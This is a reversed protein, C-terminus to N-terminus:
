REAWNTPERKKFEIEETQNEGDVLFLFLHLRLFLLIYALQILQSRKFAIWKWTSTTNGVNTENKKTHTYINQKTEIPAKDALIQAYSQMKIAYKWRFKPVKKTGQKRVLLNASRVSGPFIHCANKKRESQLRKQARISVCDGFAKRAKEIDKYMRCQTIYM